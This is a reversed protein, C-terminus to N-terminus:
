DWRLAGRRWVYIYGVLLILMFVLMELLTFVQWNPLYEAGGAAQENRFILAWPLIFMAEMDFLVFLIAVMYYKVSIRRNAEHFPAIGCEYPEGKTATIHRRGLLASLFFTVVGFGTAVMLLILVPIYDYLM